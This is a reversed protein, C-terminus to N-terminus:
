FGQLGSKSLLQDASLQLCIRQAQLHQVSGMGLVLGRVQGVGMVEWSIVFLVRWGAEGVLCALSGMTGLPTTAQRGVEAVLEVVLLLWGKIGV